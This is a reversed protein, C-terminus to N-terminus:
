IHTLSLEFSVGRVAQVADRGKGFSIVLDRVSIM